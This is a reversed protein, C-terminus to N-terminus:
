PEAAARGGPEVAASRRNRAADRVLAHWVIMGAGCVLMSDALNFNPWDYTWGFLHIRVLIWDRVACQLAADRQPHSALGLRDYLNGLIGALILALTITLWGDRAAGGFVFWYVLGVAALVSLLAFLWSLGGGMGFLAGPNLATQLGIVDEWLWRTPGSPEGLTRFAWAKSALDAACGGLSILLFLALREPCRSAPKMATRCM